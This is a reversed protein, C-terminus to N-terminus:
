SEMHSEESALSVPELIQQRSLIDVASRLPIEVIREVGCLGDAPYRGELDIEQRKENM